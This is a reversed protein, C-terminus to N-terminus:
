QANYFTTSPLGRSFSPKQIHLKAYFAEPDRAALRRLVAAEQDGLHTFAAAVPLASAISILGRQGVRAIKEALTTREWDPSNFLDTLEKVIVYGLAANPPPGNVIIKALNLKFREHVDSYITPTVIYKASLGKLGAVTLAHAARYGLDDPKPFRVDEVMNSGFKEFLKAGSAKLTDTVLKSEAESLVRSGLIANRAPVLEDIVKEFGAGTFGFTAAEQVFKSLNQISDSQYDAGGLAEQVVIGTTFSGFAAALGPLGAPGLVAVLLSRSTFEAFAGVAAVIGARVSRVDELRAIFRKYGISVLANPDSVHEARMIAKLEDGDTTTLEVWKELVSLGSAAIEVTRDGTLVDVLNRNLATTVGGLAGTRTSRDQRRALDRVDTPKAEPTLLRILQGKTYSEEIGERGGVEIANRLRVVPDRSENLPDDILAGVARGAGGADLYRGVYAAIVANRLNLDAIDSLFRYVTALNAAPTASGIRGGLALDIRLAGREAQSLGPKTLAEYLVLETSSAVINESVPLPPRLDGSPPHRLEYELTGEAGALWANTTIAVIEDYQSRRSAFYLKDAFTPERRLNIRAELEDLGRLRSDRVLQKDTAAREFEVDKEREPSTRKRKDLVRRVAAAGSVTVAGDATFAGASLGAALRQQAAIDQVSNAFYPENRMSYAYFLGEAVHLETGRLESRMAPELAQSVKAPPFGRVHKDWDEHLKTFDPIGRDWVRQLIALAPEHHAGFIATTLFSLHDADTLDHDLVALLRKREYGSTDDVIHEYLTDNATKGIGTFAVNYHAELTKRADLDRETLLRLVDPEATGIPILDLGMQAWGDDEHGIGAHLIIMVRVFDPHRHSSLGPFLGRNAEILAARLSSHKLEDYRQLLAQLRGRRGEVTLADVVRFNYVARVAVDLDAVVRDLDPLAPAPAAPVPPTSPPVSTAATAAPTAATTATTTATPTATPTTAPTAPTAAPRSAPAVSAPARAAPVAPQLAGTSVARAAAAASQVGGGTLVRVVGSNGLVDLVDALGGAVDALPSAPSPPAVATTRAPGAAAAPKPAPLKSPTRALADPRRRGLAPEARTLETQAM